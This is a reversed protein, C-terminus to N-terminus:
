FKCVFFLAIQHNTWLTSEFKNLSQSLLQYEFCVDWNKSLSKSYSARVGTKFFDGITALGRQSGFVYGVLATWAQLSFKDKNRIPFEVLLSPGLSGSSELTSFPYSYSYSNGQESYKMLIGNLDIAGGSFLNGKKLFTIRKLHAYQLYFTNTRNLLFETKLREQAYSFYVQHRTKPNGARFFVAIPMSSGKGSTPSVNDDKFSSYYWGTGFGFEKLSQAFSTLSGFVIFSVLV